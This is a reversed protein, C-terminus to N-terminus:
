ALGIIKSVKLNAKSVLEAYAKIGPTQSNKLMEKELKLQKNKIFLGTVECSGVNYKIKSQHVFFGDQVLLAFIEILAPKFDKTASFTLDDVYCSFTIGKQNCLNQLEAATQSFILNAISTSTPAGQPLCNKYTTLKTLIRAQNWTFGHNLFLHNVRRNSIKGFFNKLDITLFFKSEIHELANDIHNRGAVGGFMCPSLQITQLHRNIETQFTKLRFEPNVVNRIKQSGDKNLQPRGYKIKPYSKKRYFKDPNDTLNRIFSSPIRLEFHTFNM